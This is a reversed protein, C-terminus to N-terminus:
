WMHSMALKIKLVRLFQMGPSKLIAMAHTHTHTHTHTDGSILYFTENILIQNMACM